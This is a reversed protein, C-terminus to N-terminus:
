NAEREVLNCISRFLPSGADTVQDVITFHNTGPVVMVEAAVGAQQWAEATVRSQRLFEQSEFAGVAAIFRSGRPPAPGHLPSIARASMANLGLAGNLSTALLPELDFVGSLSVAARVARSSAMGLGSWETALLMAAM